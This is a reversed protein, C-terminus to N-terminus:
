YFVIYCINVAVYKMHFLGIYHGMQFTTKTPAPPQIKYKYSLYFKSPEEGNDVKKVVRIADLSLIGIFKLKQGNKKTVRFEDIHCVASPDEIKARAPPVTSGDELFITHRNICYEGKNELNYYIIENDLIDCVLLETRFHKSAALTMYRAKKYCKRNGKVYNIKHDTLITLTPNSESKVTVPNSHGNRGNTRESASQNLSTRLRATSQSRDYEGSPRFRKPNLRSPTLNDVSSHSFQGNGVGNPLFGNRSNPRSDDSSIEIVHEDLPEEKVITAVSSNRRKRGTRIIHAPHYEEDDSLFKLNEDVKTLFLQEIQNGALYSKNRIAFKLDNIQEEQQQMAKTNILHSHEHEDRANRFTSYYVFIHLM